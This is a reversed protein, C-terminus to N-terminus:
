IINNSTLTDKLKGNPLSIKEGIRYLRDITVEKRIKYEKPKVEKKPQEM